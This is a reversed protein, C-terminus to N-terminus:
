PQCHARRERALAGQTLFGVTARQELEAELPLGVRAGGDLLSARAALSLELSRLGDELLVPPQAGRAVCAAYLKVYDRINETELAEIGFMQVRVGALLRSREADQHPHGPVVAVRGYEGPWGLGLFPDESEMSKVYGWASAKTGFVWILLATGFGALVHSMQGVAGSRYRLNVYAVDEFDTEPLIQDTGTCELHAVEGGFWRLLDFWHCAEAVLVGGSCEARQIWRTSKSYRFPARWYYMSIARFEGLDGDD